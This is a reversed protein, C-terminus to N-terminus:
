VPNDVWELESGPSFGERSAAADYMLTALNYIGLDFERGPNKRVQM